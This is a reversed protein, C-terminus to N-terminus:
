QNKKLGHVSQEHKTYKAVCKFISFGFFFEFVFLMMCISVFFFVLLNLTILDNSDDSYILFPFLHIWNLSNNECFYIYKIQNEYKEYRM